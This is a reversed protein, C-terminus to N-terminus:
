FEFVILSSNDTKKRNLKWRHLFIKHVHFITRSKTANNLRHILLWLEYIFPVAYIKTSMLHLLQSLSCNTKLKGNQDDFFRMLNFTFAFKTGIFSHDHHFQQVTCMSVCGSFFGLEYQDKMILSSRCHNPLCKVKGVDNNIWCKVSFRRFNHENACWIRALSNGISM